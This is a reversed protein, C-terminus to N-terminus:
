SPRYPSRYWHRQNDTQRPKPLGAQLFSLLPPLAGIDKRIIKRLGTAHGDVRDRALPMGVRLGGAIARSDINRHLTVSVKQDPDIEVRGLDVGAGM